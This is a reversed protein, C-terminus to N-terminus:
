TQFQIEGTEKNGVVLQESGGIICIEGIWRVRQMDLVVTNIQMRMIEQKFTMIKRNDDIDLGGRM